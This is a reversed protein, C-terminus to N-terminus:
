QILLGAVAKRCHESLAKNESKVTVKCLNFGAKFKLEVYFCHASITSVAFYLAVQGDQGPIDRKLVFAVERVALKRKIAELDVTPLDATCGSSHCVSCLFLRVSSVM